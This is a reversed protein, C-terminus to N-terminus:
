LNLGYYPYYELFIVNIFFRENSNNSILNYCKKLFIHLLQNPLLIKAPSHSGTVTDSILIVLLKL